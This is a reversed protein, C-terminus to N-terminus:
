AATTNDSTHRCRFSSIEPEVGRGKPMSSRGNSAPPRSPSGYLGMEVDHTQSDEVFAGFVDRLFVSIDEVACPPRHPEADGSLLSVSRIDHAVEVRRQAGPAMYIASLEVLPMGGLDTEIQPKGHSSRRGQQM